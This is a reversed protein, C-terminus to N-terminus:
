LGYIHCYGGGRGGPKEGFAKIMPWHGEAMEFKFVSLSSLCTLFHNHPLCPKEGGGRGREKVLGSSKWKQFHAFCHHSTVAHHNCYGRASELPSPFRKHKENKWRDKSAKKYCLLPGSFFGRYNYDMHPHEARFPYRKWVKPIHFPLSKGLQPINFPLLTQWKPRYFSGPSCFSKIAHFTSFM